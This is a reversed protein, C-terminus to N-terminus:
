LENGSIGLIKNVNLSGTSFSREDNRLVIQLQGQWKKEITFAFFLGILAGFITFIVVKGKNRSIIQVLQNLEIESSQNDDNFLNIKEISM